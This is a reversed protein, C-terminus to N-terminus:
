DYVLLKSSVKLYRMAMGKLYIVKHYLYILAFGVVERKIFILKPLDHKRKNVDALSAMLFIM